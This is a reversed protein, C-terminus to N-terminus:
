FYEVLHMPRPTFVRALTELNDAVRLNAGSTLLQAPSHSGCILQTLTQIDAAMDPAAVDERVVEATEADLCVRFTGNNEPLVPDTISLTFRAPREPRRMRRLADAADVVRLMASPVTKLSVDYPEEVLWFPDLGEPVRLEMRRFKSDLARFLGLLGALGEADMWAMDEVVLLTGEPENRIGYLVYARTEGAENHWRYAYVPMAQADLTWRQWASPERRIVFNLGKTFAEYVAKVDDLPMEPRHQTLFGACPRRALGDVPLTAIVKRVAHAYGFKGYFGHSFPYLASFTVGQAYMERLAHEMLGRVHGQRRAEVLASVGGIGDMRAAQGDFSCTYPLVSLSALMHGADDFACRAREASEPTYAPREDAPRTRLFAMDRIRVMEPYEERTPRRIIM